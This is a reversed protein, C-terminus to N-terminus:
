RGDERDPRAIDDLVRIARREAELRAERSRAEVLTEAAKLASRRVALNQRAGERDGGAETKAAVCRAIAASGAPLWAAFAGPAAANVVRAERAVSAQAQTLARTAAIEAAIAAALDRKAQEAELKRLRALTNLVRSM